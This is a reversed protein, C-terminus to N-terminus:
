KWVTNSFNLVSCILLAHNVIYLKPEMNKIRHTYKVFESPAGNRKYCYHCSRLTCAKRKIKRASVSKGTMNNKRENVGYEMLAPHNDTCLEIPEGLWTSGHTLSEQSM